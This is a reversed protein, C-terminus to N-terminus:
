TELYMKSVKPGPYDRLGHVFWWFATLTIIGVLIVSNYNMLSVTVPYAFPFCFWVNFFVILICAIINVIYGLAGHMWFPGRPINSRRTLVNPLIALLYSATTLTIFSSVLVTFAVKSGLQIAGLGTTLLACFVTAPVPCSLSEDVKAFSQACPTANDRALTWWLRGVMTVTGIICIMISLLVILLLGFTAARSGTAQAYLESLPFSGSSTIIADLDYVGYFVAVGFVFATIFGLGIQIMIAKPLDVRPNPLEEAMHTVSDPTGIAFAGNLVGTLFAAGNSWGTLNNFDAWVFSNTAYERPMTTVVIVTVLGGVVILFLGIHQLYPITKNCFIVFATVLWIICVFAVYSHWAEIVLDPHFLAYMQVIVNAPITAISVLAFIWGFFNLSGTFFGLVRGYRPGATVSAWHYVGGSSPISSALESISLGIFTYYVCAVIYEYLIGPPGGNLLSIQLSGAFAIWANNITLALGCVEWTRYQRNLQDPHGSANVNTGPQVSSTALSKEVSTHAPVTHEARKNISMTPIRPKM